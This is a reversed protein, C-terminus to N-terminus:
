RKSCVIVNEETKWGVPNSYVTKYPDSVILMDEILFGGNAVPLLYLFYQEALM